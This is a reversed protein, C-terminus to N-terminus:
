FGKSHDPANTQHKTLDSEIQNFWKLFGHISKANSCHYCDQPRATWAAKALEVLEASSHHGNDSMFRKLAPFDAPIKTYPKGFITLFSEFWLRTFETQRDKRDREEEKRWIETATETELKFRPGDQDKSVDYGKSDVRPAGACLDIKTSEIKSGQNKTRVRNEIEPKELEPDELLPFDSEPARDQAVVVQKGASIFKPSDAIVLCFAIVRGRLTLRRLEAYGAKRLEMLGSTVAAGGDTSRNSIDNVRAKWDDPKGLLYCLIGKAKWSLNSDDLLDKPIRAFFDERRERIITPNGTSEEVGSETKGANKKM